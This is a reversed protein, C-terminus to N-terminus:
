VHGSRNVPQTTDKYNLSWDPQSIQFAPTTRLCNEPEEFDNVCSAGKLQDGGISSGEEISRGSRDWRLRLTVRLQSREAARARVFEIRRIPMRQIASKSPFTRATAEFRSFTVLKWRGTSNVRKGIVLLQPFRRYTRLPFRITPLTSDKSDLM